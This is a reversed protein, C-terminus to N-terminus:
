SLSSYDLIRNSSRSNWCNQCHCHCHRLSHFRAPVLVLVSDHDLLDDIAPVDYHGKMCGTRSATHRDVSRDWTVDVIALMSKSLAVVMWANGHVV